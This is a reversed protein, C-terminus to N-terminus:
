FFVVVIFHLTFSYYTCHYWIKTMLLDRCGCYHFFTSKMKQITCLSCSLMWCVNTRKQSNYPFFIM